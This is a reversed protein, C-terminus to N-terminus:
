LGVMDSGARINNIITLQKNTSQAINSAYSELGVERSERLPVREGSTTVLYVIWLNAGLFNQNAEMEISAVDSFYIQRTTPEDTTSTYVMVIREERPDVTVQGLQEQHGVKMWVWSGCAAFLLAMLLVGWLPNNQRPGGQWHEQLDEFCHKCRPAGDPVENKCKPCDTMEQSLTGDEQERNPLRAM